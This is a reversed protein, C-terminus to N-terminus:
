ERGKGKAKASRLFDLDMADRVTQEDFGSAFLMEEVQEGSMGEKRLEGALASANRVNTAHAQKLFDRVVNGFKDM